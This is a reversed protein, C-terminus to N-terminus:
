VSNCFGTQKTAAPSAGALIGYRCPKDRGSKRLRLAQGQWNEKLSVFFSSGFVFFVEDRM